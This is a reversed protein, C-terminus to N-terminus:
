RRRLRNWFRKLRVGAQYLGPRDPVTLRSGPVLRRRLKAVCRLDARRMQSFLLRLLPDPATGAVIATSFDVVYPEGGPGVLIDRHHLDGHAVGRDHMRRLLRELRAFFTEDVEGPRVANLTRGPIYELAIAHRDVRGLLRPIGDVGELTRYAREERDLQWPGFLVRAPWLRGSLDKLVIARGEVELLDIDAKTPNRGSHLRRRPLDALRQRTLSEM